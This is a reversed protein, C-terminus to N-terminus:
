EQQVYNLATPDLVGNEDKGEESNEDRNIFDFKHKIIEARADKSSTVQRKLVNELEIM